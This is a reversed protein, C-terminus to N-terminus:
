SFNLFYDQHCFFLLMGTTPNITYQPSNSIISYTVGNPNTVSVQGFQAGPILTGATLFLQPQTFMPAGMSGTGGTGSCTAIINVPITTTGYPNTATVLMTYTGPSIARSLTIQGTSSVLFPTGSTAAGFVVQAANTVGVTGIVMGISTCSATTSAQIVTPTQLAVPIGTAIGGTGGTGTGTNSCTVTVQCTATAGTFGPGVYATVTASQPVNTTLYNILIIQGNNSNVGLYQNPMAITYYGTGPAIVTGAVTGPVCRTAQFSYASNSFSLSTVQGLFLALAISLRLLSYGLFTRSM